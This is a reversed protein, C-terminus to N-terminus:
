SQWAYMLCGRRNSLVPLPSLTGGSRLGFGFIFGVYRFLLHPNSEEERRGHPSLKVSLASAYVFGFISRELGFSM